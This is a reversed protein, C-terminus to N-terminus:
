SMKEYKGYEYSTLKSLTSLQQLREIFDICEQETNMLVYDKRPDGWVTKPQTAYLVIYM